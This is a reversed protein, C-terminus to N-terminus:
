VGSGTLHHRAETKTMFHLSSLGLLVELLEEPLGLETRVKALAIRPWWMIAVYM